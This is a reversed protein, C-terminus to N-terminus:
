SIYTSKLCMELLEAIQEPSPFTRNGLMEDERFRECIVSVAKGVPVNAFRSSVDSSVLIEDNKVHMDKMMETFHRSNKVHSSNQGAITPIHLIHHAQGQCRLREMM